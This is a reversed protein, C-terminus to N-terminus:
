KGCFSTYVTEKKREQIPINPRKLKFCDIPRFSKKENMVKMELNFARSFTLLLSLQLDQSSRFYTPMILVILFFVISINININM